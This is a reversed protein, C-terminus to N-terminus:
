LSITVPMKVHGDVMVEDLELGHKIIDDVYCIIQGKTAM